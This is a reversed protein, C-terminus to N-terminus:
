YIWPVLKKVRQRYNLYEPYRESLWIEEQNAKFDFFAVLLLMAGFHSLSLQGIAYAKAALTIGSYLPHRVIGYVGSQVLQGDQRPYPLPTLNNGLDVLGKGVLIAAGM